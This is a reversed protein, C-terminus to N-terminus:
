SRISKMKKRGNWFLNPRHSFFFLAVVDRICEAFFVERKHKIYLKWTQSSRDVAGWVFQSLVTETQSERLFHTANLFTVPVVIWPRVVEKRNCLELLGYLIKIIRKINKQFNRCSINRSMDYAAYSKGLAHVNKTINKLKIGVKRMMKELSHLIEGNIFYTKRNQLKFRLKRFKKDVNLIKATQISVSKSAVRRHSMLSWCVGVILFYSSSVHKKFFLAFIM